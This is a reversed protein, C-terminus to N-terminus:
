RPWLVALKPAIIRRELICAWSRELANNKTRRTNRILHASALHLRHRLLKHKPLRCDELLGQLEARARRARERVLNGM